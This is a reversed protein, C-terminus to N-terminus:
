RLRLIDSRFVYILLLLLLILGIMNAVEMVKRNVPSGKIKEIFAFMIHGGDLVPIPFINIIGLNVSILATMMLLSDMGQSVAKTIEGGIAIPGMLDAKVAGTIMLYIYQLILMILSLMTAIGEFISKFFNVRVTEFSSSIGIIMRGTNEDEMA